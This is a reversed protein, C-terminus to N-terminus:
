FGDRKGRLAAFIEQANAGEMGFASALEPDDARLFPNTRKEKKLSVPLTAKHAVRLDEVQRVRERLRTNGPDVEVAFAANKATYEHGCYLMTTEPLERLRKLSEWLMAPTGELLRGCGMSFLADGAFLAEAQPLYYSVSGLTHGPTDIVEVRIGGVHFAEGGSVGRDIGPIRDKEKEPGIIEVGFRTKLAENAEVHDRHHHTTLIHTLRWGEHELAALIPGEQPADVSFTVGSAPEHVLVGFNDSHCTFQRIEIEGM